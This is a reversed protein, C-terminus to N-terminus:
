GGVERPSQAPDWQLIVMHGEPCASRFSSIGGEIRVRLQSPLEAVKRPSVGCCSFFCAACPVTRKRLNSEHRQTNKTNKAYM